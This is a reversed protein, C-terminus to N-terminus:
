LMAVGQESFAFSLYKAHEGKKLTGFHYRLASQEESNLEFMFDAPFREINRRVARKLTKTEVGYLEALDRDLMVKEGSILIIKGSIQELPRMKNGVNSLYILILILGSCVGEKISIDLTLLLIDIYHQIFCNLFINQAIIFYGKGRQSITLLRLL